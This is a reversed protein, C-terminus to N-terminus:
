GCNIGYGDQYAGFRISTLLSTAFHTAPSVCGTGIFREGESLGSTSLLWRQSQSFLPDSLLPSNEGEEMLLQLGMLHRDIGRGLVAKRTLAVHLRTANKLLTFLEQKSARLSIM